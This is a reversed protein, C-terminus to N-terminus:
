FRVNVFNNYSSGFRYNLGIYTNYSYDTDLQIAGLLIQEDSIDAKSINIRDNIFSIWAGFSVSLGKAIQWEFDPGLFISYLDLKHFYQNVGAYFSVEGWKQVVEYEMDLGHRYVVETLKDFITTDTYNKYEPGISYMFSFRRTQADSYPYINYEIAPKISSEFDTNGFTSSGASANIGASWHDNISLVYRSFANYTKQINIIETSDSLTFSSRNYNYRLRLIFKNQETIRNANFRGNLGISNFSSEGNLFMNGGVNFVWYNWPDNIPDGQNEEIDKDQAESISFDIRDAIPTKLLYPLLGKKLNKVFKERRIADTDDPSTIYELTDVMGAFANNGEFVFQVRRGGDGKRLDTTLIYVDAEQRNQMYNVFTIEQKIYNFDCRMQCDIFISPNSSNQQSIAACISIFLM